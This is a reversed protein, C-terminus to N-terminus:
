WCLYMRPVHWVEALKAFQVYKDSYEYAAFMDM